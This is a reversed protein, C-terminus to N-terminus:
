RAWARMVAPFNVEVDVPRLGFEGARRALSAVKASKVFVLVLADHGVTGEATPSGERGAGQGLHAVGVDGVHLAAEIGPALPPV